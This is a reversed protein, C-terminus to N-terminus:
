VRIMIAKIEHNHSVMPINKKDGTICVHKLHETSLINWLHLM